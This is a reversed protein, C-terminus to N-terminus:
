SVYAKGPETLSNRDVLRLYLSQMREVTNSMSFRAHARAFAQERLSQRFASDSITQRLADTLSELSQSNFVLGSKKHEILEPIGGVDSGIVCCGCAMAELLGNPFSESVSANVYIDIIRLWDAVQAQGPIFLVKDSVGLQNALLQLRPTEPGNGVLILRAYDDRACSEAFSRILWDMRKEPRMVCVSGVVVSADALIDPRAHDAPHFEESNIGNYCLFIKESPLKYDRELSKGVAKSNVVVVKSFHDTARLLLRERAVVLDRYSLQATVLQPVRFFLSSLGAFIDTPVDFAHVLQIAHESIYHGFHRAAAVVSPKMFSSVPFHVVPIGAQQVELLRFGGTRLVGVHPSFLRRDLSVALKAADRECGGQGLSQVLLLIPIPPM